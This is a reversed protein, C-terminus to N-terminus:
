DRFPDRMEWSEMYTAGTDDGAWQERKSYSEDDSPWHELAEMAEQYGGYVPTFSYGAPYRSCNQIVIQWQDDAIQHVSYPLGHIERIPVGRFRIM